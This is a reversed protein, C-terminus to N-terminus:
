PWSHSGTKPRSERTSARTEFWFSGGGTPVGALRPDVWLESALGSLEKDSAVFAVPLVVDWRSAGALLAAALLYQESYFRDSWAPPYDFPLFIDHVHVRVGAPLRPLVELFFVTVDSNTFARHSGDMFVIDGSKLEAFPALDSSELSQRIAEDCLADIEARPFPDISVIRTRLQSDDVAARAFKTSMGSGIELYTRPALNTVTAYLSAADLGSLWPNMWYPIGARNPEYLSIGALADRRSVIQRLETRYRERNQALLVEMEPHRGRGYGHRPMPNVKYDLAVLQRRGIAALAFVRM